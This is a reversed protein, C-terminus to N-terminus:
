GCSGVATSSVANFMQKDGTSLENVTVSYTITATAGVALDGTWTLIPSAYTVTGTSATANDDYAAEDLLVSLDDNTTAGTYATQGTNHVTVTYNM